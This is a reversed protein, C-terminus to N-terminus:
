LFRSQRNSHVHRRFCEARTALRPLKVFQCVVTVQEHTAPCVPGRTQFAMCKFQRDLRMTM